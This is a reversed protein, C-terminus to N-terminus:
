EQEISWLIIIYNLISSFLSFVDAAYVYVVTGNAKTVDDIYEGMHKNAKTLAESVIVYGGRDLVLLM